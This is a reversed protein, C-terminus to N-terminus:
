IRFPKAQFLIRQNILFDEIEGYNIEKINRNGWSSIAKRIYNNLNNFSKRKLQKKKLELWKCSLNEFGLPKNINYEREDFSNEDLKFRLGNLLNVCGSSARM